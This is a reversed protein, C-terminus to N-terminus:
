GSQRFGIKEICFVSSLRFSFDPSTHTLVFFSLSPLFGISLLLLKNQFCLVEFLLAAASKEAAARM